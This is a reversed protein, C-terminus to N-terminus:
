GYGLAVPKLRHDNVSFIKYGGFDGFGIEGRQDQVPKSLCPNVAGITLSGPLLGHPLTPDDDASCFFVMMKKVAKEM